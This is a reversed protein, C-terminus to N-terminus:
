STACLQFDARLWVNRGYACSWCWRLCLAGRRGGPIEVASVAESRGGLSPPRCCHCIGRTCSRTRGLKVGPPRARRIELSRRLVVCIM